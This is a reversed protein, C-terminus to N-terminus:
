KIVGSIIMLLFNRIGETIIHEIRFSDFYTVNEDNVYLTMWHTEISKFEDLNILYRGDKIKPLNKRSYFGNFKPEKEIFKKNVSLTANFIRVQQLLAKM